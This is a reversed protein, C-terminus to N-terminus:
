FTFIQARLATESHVIRLTLRVHDVHRDSAERVLIHADSRLVLKCVQMLPASSVSLKSYCRYAFRLEAWIPAWASPMIGTFFVTWMLVGLCLLLMKPLVKFSHLSQTIRPVFTSFFFLSLPRFLTLPPGFNRGCNRADGPLPVAPCPVEREPATARRAVKIVHARVFVTKPASPKGLAVRYSKLSGCEKERRRKGECEGIRTVHVSTGGHLTRSCWRWKGGHKAANETVTSKLKSATKIKWTSWRYRAILGSKETSRGIKCATQQNGSLSSFRSVKKQISLFVMELAMVIRLKLPPEWILRCVCTFINFVFSYM